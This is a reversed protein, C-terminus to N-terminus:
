SNYRILMALIKKFLFVTLPTVSRELPEKKWLCCNGSSGLAAMLILYGLCCIILLKDVFDSLLVCYMKVIFYIQKREGKTQTMM